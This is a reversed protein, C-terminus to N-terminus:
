HLLIIDYNVSTQLFVSKISYDSPPKRKSEERTRSTAMKGLKASTSESNNLLSVSIQSEHKNECRYFSKTLESFFTFSNM